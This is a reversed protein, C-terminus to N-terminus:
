GWGNQSRKSRSNTTSKHDNGQNARPKVSTVRALAALSEASAEGSMGLRKRQKNTLPRIQKASIAGAPVIISQM